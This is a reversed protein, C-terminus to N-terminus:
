GGRKFSAVEEGLRRLRYVRAERRFEKKEPKIETALEVAEIMIVFTVEVEVEGGDPGIM